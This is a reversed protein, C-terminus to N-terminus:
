ARKARETGESTSNFQTETLRNESVEEESSLRSVQVTSLYNSSHVRSAWLGVDM